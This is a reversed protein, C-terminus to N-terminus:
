GLGRVRNRNREKWGGTKGKRVREGEKARESARERGQNVAERCGTAGELASLFPVYMCVVLMTCLVGVRLLVGPICEIHVHATYM